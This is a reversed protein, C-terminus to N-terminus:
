VEGRSFHITTEVGVGLEGSDKGFKNALDMPRTVPLPGDGSTSEGRSRFHISGVPGTTVADSTLASQNAVRQIILLPAIVQTEALIPFFIDVIPASSQGIVLLSSVAYLACSEILMTIVTKYLGGIGGPNGMVARVNRTHMVLRIVIMLTLLINLSLSISLYVSTFKFVRSGWLESNPTSAQVIVTTLGMGFASLFVLFPLAIVWLNKAYVVYCRYLLLGDALSGNLLFMVDPVVTLADSFIFSQYGIPGPPVVGDVGPYERNDIFSISQINLNMATFVTVFSFMAVTYSVLGWKIGERKRHAPNLLASMCKFFLVIVVGYLISGILIGAFDAKEQFYLSYPIKPANPNDSWPKQDSDSM